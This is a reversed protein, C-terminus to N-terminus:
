QFERLECSNMSLHESKASRVVEGARTDRDAYAAAGIVSREAVSVGNRVSANLGLFSYAGITADGGIAANPSIYVHDGIMSGAGM